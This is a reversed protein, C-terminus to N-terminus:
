ETRAAPRSTSSGLEWVDGLAGGTVVLYRKGGSKVIASDEFQGFPPAVYGFEASVYYRSFFTHLKGGSFDLESPVTGNLQFLHLDYASFEGAHVLYGEGFRLNKTILPKNTNVENRTYGGSGNPVICEILTTTADVAVWFNTGDSAVAKAHGAPPTFSFLPDGGSALADAAFIQFSGDAGVLGIRDMAATKAFRFMSRNDLTRVKAPSTRDTVNFVNLPVNTENSILAYYSGDSGKVVAIKGPEMEESNAHFMSTMLSGDTTFGDQVIGWGFKTYALYVYGQDDADFCTLRDQGDDQSVADWGNPENEAYFFQDFRFIQEDPTGIRSSADWAFKGGGVPVSRIGVLGEGSQLRTFFGDLNYAFLASGIGFYIRNRSPLSLVYKARATRFPQQCDNTASSDVFRGAYRGLEPPYGPTLKGNNKEPCGTCPVDQEPAAAPRVWQPVLPTPM